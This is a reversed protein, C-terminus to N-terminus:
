YVLINVSYVIEIGLFEPNEKHCCGLVVHRGGVHGVDEVSHHLYESVETSHEIFLADSLIEYQYVFYNVLDNIISM